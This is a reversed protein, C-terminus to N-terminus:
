SLYVGDSWEPGWQSTVMDFIGKGNVADLNCSRGKNHMIKWTIRVM